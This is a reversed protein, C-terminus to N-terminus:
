RKTIRRVFTVHGDTVRLYYLGPNGELDFDVEFMKHSKPIVAFAVRTGYADYVDFIFERDKRNEVKVKFRGKTPNPHIVLLIGDRKEDDAFM